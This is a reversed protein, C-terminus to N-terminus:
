LGRKKHRQIALNLIVVVLQEYSLGAQKAAMPVLSHSTMGPSTNVELLWNKGQGDRMVDIRGWDACEIADFARVCEIELAMQQAASLTNEFSYLTDDSYYKAELDYFENNTQLRIAPLARGNLIGVTYEEGVILKEAMVQRDFAKADAYATQMDEVSAAIHVGLSSGEHVPKVVLPLGLESAVEGLDSTDDLLCWPPTAINSREWVIKTMLKHMGLASAMVGSGTYPVGLCELVGQLTGDEGGPGHMAIFAADMSAQQLQQLQTLGSALAEPASLDIAFADVGAALLYQLVQQGSLLSIEREASDGGFIVGIRGTPVTLLDQWEDALNITIHNVNM